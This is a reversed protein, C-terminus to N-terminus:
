FLYASLLKSGIEGKSHNEPSMQSIYIPTVRIHPNDPLETGAALALVSFSDTLFYKSFAHGRTSSYPMLNWNKFLLQTSWDVFVKKFFVTWCKKMLLCVSSQLVFTSLVAYCLRCSNKGMFPYSFALSTVQTHLPNSAKDSATRWGKLFVDLDPIAFM